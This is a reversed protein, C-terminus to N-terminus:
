IARVDFFWYFYKPNSHTWRHNMVKGNALKLVAIIGQGIIILINLGANTWKHYM